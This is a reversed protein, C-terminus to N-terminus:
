GSKYLGELETNNQPYIKNIIKISFAAPVNFITLKEDAYDYRSSTLQLDNIWLEILELSTSSLELDKADADNKRLQMTNTVTTYEEYLDFVLDVKDISFLPKQYDKLYIAKMESM